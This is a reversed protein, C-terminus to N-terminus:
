NGGELNLAERSGPEPPGILEDPVAEYEPLPVTEWEGSHTDLVQPDATCGVFLLALVPLFTKRGSGRRDNSNTM